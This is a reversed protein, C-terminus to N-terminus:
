ATRSRGPSGRLIQGIWASVAKRDRFIEMQEEGSGHALMDAMYGAQAQRRIAEAEIDTLQNGSKLAFHAVRYVTNLDNVLGQRWNEFAEHTEAVEQRRRAERNEANTPKRHLPLGLAFDANLREVAGLPELGLLKGTFDISDGSEGCAWCKFRGARFSMSPHKDPHFPCLAWGRRDFTLGYRRAAEEATVAERCTHFIDSMPQAM